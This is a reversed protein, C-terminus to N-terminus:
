LRQSCIHLADEKHVTATRPLMVVHRADQLKLVTTCHASRRLRAAPCWRHPWTAECQMPQAPVQRCEACSLCFAVASAAQFSLSSKHWLVAKLCGSAQPRRLLYGPVDELLLGWLLQVLHAPLSYSSSTFQRGGSSMKRFSASASILVSSSSTRWLHMVSAAAYSCRSCALVRLWVERGCLSAKSRRSHPYCAQTGVWHILCHYLIRAVSTSDFPYM